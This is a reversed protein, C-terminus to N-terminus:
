YDGTYRPVFPELVGRHLFSRVAVLDSDSGSYDKLATVDVYDLVALHYFHLIHSQLFNAGLMINRLLRRNHPIMDAIGFAEDLAKAAATAHAQPCVGCIRQMLIPADRPDRGAM